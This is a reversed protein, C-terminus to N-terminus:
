GHSDDIGIVSLSPAYLQDLHIPATEWPNAAASWRDGAALISTTGVWWGGPSWGAQGPTEYHTLGGGNAREYADHAACDTSWRPNLVIGGPLGNAVREANLWSLDRAANQAATGGPVKPAPLQLDDTTTSAGNITTSGLQVPQQNPTDSVGDLVTVTYTGAPLGTVTYSGGAGSFTSWGDMTAGDSNSLQVQMGALAAGHDDTVRGTLNGVAAQLAITEQDTEGASLAIPGVTAVQYQPLAAATLTYSGPPLGSLTFDGSTDTAASYWNGSADQTSVHAGSIPQSTDQDIVTGTVTATSSDALAVPALTFPALALLAAVLLAGVVLRCMKM